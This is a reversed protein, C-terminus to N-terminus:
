YRMLQGTMQEKPQCTVIIGRSLQKKPMTKHNLMVNPPVKAGNALVMLMVNLCMKEGGNVTCDSQCEMKNDQKYNACCNKEELV